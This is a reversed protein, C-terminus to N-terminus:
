LSRSEDSIKYFTKYYEIIFKTRAQDTTFSVAQGGSMKERYGTETKSQGIEIGHNFLLLQEMASLHEYEPHVEFFTYEHSIGDFFEYVLAVEHPSEEQLKNVIRDALLPDIHKHQYIDASTFNLQFFRRRDEEKAFDFLPLVDELHCALYQAHSQFAGNSRNVDSVVKFFAYGEETTYLWKVEENTLNKQLFKYRLLRELLSPKDFVSRSSHFHKSAPGKQSVVKYLDKDLKLTLVLRFFNRIKDHYSLPIDKGISLEGDARFDESNRALKGIQDLIDHYVTFVSKEIDVTVPNHQVLIGNEYKIRLLQRPGSREDPVQSTITDQLMRSLPGNAYKEVIWLSKDLLQLANQQVVSKAYAQAEVIQPPMKEHGGWYGAFQELIQLRIEEFTKDDANEASRYWNELFTFFHEVTGFRNMIKRVPDYRLCHILLSYMNLGTDKLEMNEYFAEWPQKERVDYAYKKIGIRILKKQDEPYYIKFEYMMEIWQKKTIKSMPIALHKLEQKMLATKEESVVIQAEAAVSEREPAKEAEAKAAEILLLTSKRAANIKDIFLNVKQRINLDKIKADRVRELMSKIGALEHLQWEFRLGDSELVQKEVFDIFALLNTIFDEAHEVPIEVEERELEWGITNGFEVSYGKLIKYLNFTRGLRFYRYYLELWVIRKRGKDIPATTTALFILSNLPLGSYKTFNQKIAADM